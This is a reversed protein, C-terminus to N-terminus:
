TFQLIISEFSILIKLVRNFLGVNQITNIRSIATWYSIIFKEDDFNPEAKSPVAGNDTGRWITHQTSPDNDNITM